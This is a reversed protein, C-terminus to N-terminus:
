TPGSFRFTTRRHPEWRPERPVSGPGSQRYAAIRSLPFSRGHAWSGRGLSIRAPSQRDPKGDLCGALGLSADDDALRQGAQVPLQRQVALWSDDRDSKPGTDPRGCGFEVHPRHFGVVRLVVAAIDSVVETHTHGPRGAAEGNRPGSPPMPPWASPRPIGAAVADQHVRRQTSHPDRALCLLTQSEASITPKRLPDAQM